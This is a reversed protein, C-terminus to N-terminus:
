TLAQLQDSLFVLMFTMAEEGMKKLFIKIKIKDNININYLIM